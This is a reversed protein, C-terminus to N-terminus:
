NACILGKRAPTCPLRAPTSIRRDAMAMESEGETRSLVPLKAIAVIRSVAEGVDGLGLGLLGDGQPITARSTRSREDMTTVTLSRLRDPEATCIAIRQGFLNDLHSPDLLQFGTGYSLAYAVGGGATIKETPRFLLVGAATASSIAVDTDTLASVALCWEARDKVMAGTLLLGERGGVYVASSEFGDRELYKKRIADELSAVGTLRYIATRRGSQKKDAM